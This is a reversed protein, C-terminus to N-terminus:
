HIHIRSWVHTHICLTPTNGRFCFVMMCIVHTYIICVLLEPASMGVCVHMLRRCGRTEGQVHGEWRGEELKLRVDSM